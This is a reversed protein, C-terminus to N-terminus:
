CANTLVGFIRTTGYALSTSRTLFTNQSRIFPRNLTNFDVQVMEDQFLQDLTPDCLGAWNNGSPLEDSPINNCLWEGTDPDPFNPSTSYEYMDLQFTAAPGGAGYSNFYTDSDYNLLEVKIGVAALQQQIVAQTDKRIERTTTGYKLVLEVGDKDRVDDGNSDIWGAEDLLDKAKQPDYPYPKISPDVYPTNDWYTAAVGTLGLLLDKVISARDTAYAIALRVNQDKLAPHGKTPHMNFYIGENYGSYAKLM